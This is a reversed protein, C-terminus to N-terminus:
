RPLTQTYKKRNAGRNGISGLTNSWKFSMFHMKWITNYFTKGERGESFCEFCVKELGNIIELWTRNTKFEKFTMKTKIRSIENETIHRLRVSLIQEEKERRCNCCYVYDSPSRCSESESECGCGMALVVGARVGGGGGWALPWDGHCYRSWSWCDGCCCRRPLTRGCSSVTGNESGIANEWWLLSPVLCLSPSPCLGCSMQGTRWSACARSPPLAGGRPSSLCPSTESRHCPCLSPACGCSCVGCCCHVSLVCGGGGSLWVSPSIQSEVM